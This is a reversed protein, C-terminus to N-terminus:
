SDVAWIKDSQYPRDGLPPPASGTRGGELDAVAKTGVEPILQRTYFGSVDQDWKRQWSKRAIDAAIRVADNYTM